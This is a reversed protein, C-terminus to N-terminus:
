ASARELIVLQWFAGAENVVTILGHQRAVELVREPPHLFMHFERRGIRLALNGIAVALRTWWREKPFSMVLIRRAHDAAVGALTPMDPYCCIVRNLVVIDAPPVKGGAQAFDLVQRDVLDDFGAERLLVAAAAEYTPTMEVSVASSIGAKLLEIEIAGVGGGVELLSWGELSRERLLRVLWLSVADLGRRRYRRAQAQASRESFAWRYGKPTCCDM